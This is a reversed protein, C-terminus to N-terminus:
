DFWNDKLREQEEPTSPREEITKWANDEIDFKMWLEIPELYDKNGITLQTAENFLKTIERQCKTCPKWTFPYLSEQKVFHLAFEYERDGNVISQEMSVHTRQWHLNFEKTMIITKIEIQCQICPNFYEHINRLFFGYTEVKETRSLIYTKKPGSLLESEVVERRLIINPKLENKKM